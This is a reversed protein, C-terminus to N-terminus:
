ITGQQWQISPKGNQSEVSFKLASRDFVSPLPATLTIYNIVLMVLNKFYERHCFDQFIVLM